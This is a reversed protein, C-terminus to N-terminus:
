NLMHVNILQLDEQEFNYIYNITDTGITIDRVGAIFAPVAIAILSCIFFLGKNKKYITARDTFLYSIIFSILYVAM